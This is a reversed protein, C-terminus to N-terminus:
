ATTTDSAGSWIWASYGGGVATMLGLSLLLYGALDVGLAHAPEHSRESLTFAALATMALGVVCAVVGLQWPGSLRTTTRNQVRILAAVAGTAVLAGLALGVWHGRLGQHLTASSWLCLGVWSLAGQRRTM